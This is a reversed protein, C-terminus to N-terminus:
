SRWTRTAATAFNAFTLRVLAYLTTVLVFVMPILTFAIHQRRQHLPPNGGVYQGGAM